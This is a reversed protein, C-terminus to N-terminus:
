RRSASAVILSASRALQSDGTRHKMRIESVDPDSWARWERATVLYRFRQKEARTSVSLLRQAATVMAQTPGSAAPNTQWIPHVVGDSTLGKYPQWYNRIWRKATPSLLFSDHRSAAPNGHGRDQTQYITYDSPIMHGFGPETIMTPQRIAISSGM